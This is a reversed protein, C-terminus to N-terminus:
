QCITRGRVSPLQVRCANGIAPGYYRIAVQLRLYSHKSVLKTGHEILIDRLNMGQLLVRLVHREAETPSAADVVFRQGDRMVITFERM